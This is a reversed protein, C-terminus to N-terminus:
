NTSLAFTVHGKSGWKLVNQFVFKKLVKNVYLWNLISEILILNNSVVGFALHEPQNGQRNKKFVNGVTSVSKFRYSKNKQEVKMGVCMGVPM